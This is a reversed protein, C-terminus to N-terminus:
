IDQVTCRQPPTPTLLTHRHLNNATSVPGQNNVLFSLSCLNFVILSRLLESTKKSRFAEEANEFSLDIRPHGFKDVPREDNSPSAVTGTTRISNTSTESLNDIEDNLKTSASTSKLMRRSLYGRHLPLKTLYATLQKLAM